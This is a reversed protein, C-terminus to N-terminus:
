ALLQIKMTGVEGNLHFIMRILICSYMRTNKVFAPVCDCEKAFCSYNLSLMSVNDFRNFYDESIRFIEGTRVKFKTNNTLYHFCDINDDMVWHCKFGNKISHQWCFNRAGGPGKGKTDGLDDLTQYNDKYSMDLELVTTFKMDNDKVM